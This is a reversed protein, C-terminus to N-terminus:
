LKVQEFCLTCYIPLFGHLLCQEKLPGRDRKGTTKELHSKLIDTQSLRRASSPCLIAACTRSLVFGGTV